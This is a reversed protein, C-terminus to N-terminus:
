QQDTEDDISRVLADRAEDAVQTIDVIAGEGVFGQNYQEEALQALEELDDPLYLDYTQALSRAQELRLDALAHQGDERLYESALALSRAIYEVVREDVGSVQLIAGMSEPALSLLTAGDIDTAEGVAAELMDAAGRPDKEVHAKVWSRRLIEAYQLLIRLLYDQELM